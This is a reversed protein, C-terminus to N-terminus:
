LTLRPQNSSTELERKQSTQDTGRKKQFQPSSVIRFILESFPTELTLGKSLEEILLQDSVLESRGLSYGLLKSSLNRHFISANDRLYTRLGDIGKITSGDSLLSADDIEQGDRYTDRWRGVPDFHELAFGLPDIRSHCNACTPDTRHAELRARVTLGDSQVDDAPISGADAPPPPVPTGLIRRLIWEGRKVASTRLPASTSTLIAGLQLLGGRHEKTVGQTRTLINKPLDYDSMGYHDALPPDLFTYNAFLLDKLPRDQRVIYEFFSIAENYMSAKLPENFEPFREGDVGRYQDFQYFGLWQGFFETAFRRAKPHKLMREVEAQLHLPERLAESKATEILQTDPLSAWLLFSLRSALELPPLSVIDSGVKEAELRYLFAPSVLIRTILSRIASSHDLESQERLERYFSRLRDEEWTDLPRRWAATALDISDDLHQSEAAKLSRNSENLHNFLRQVHSRPEEGIENIWEQTLNTIHDAEEGVRYKKAVFQFYTNHYDFASLLDTWAHELAERDPGDILYKTLFKDDRHYKIVYHFSNREATNYTNDFPAPIPDRDSPAPERHSVQPLRQAFEAIGQRWTEIQNPDPNSLLAASAGTSAVTEGEVLGDSVTCRVLCDSGHETDLKVTVSFFGGRSELPVPFKLRINAIGSTVFNDPDIAEGLANQGFKLETIQEESLFSKMSKSSNRRTRQGRPSRIGMRAEEWLVVLQDAESLCAPLVELDFSAETSGPPWSIGVQFRHSLTPNFANESLVAAEEDDNTNAALGKQWSSLQSYLQQCAARAKEESLSDPSPLAHWQRSIETTPFSAKSDNFVSWIHAAFLPHIDERKALEILEINAEGFAQRHRYRWAAYFAKPYQELGFAEAGEGAGTRFGHKRYLTQIRNIASLEQGTKGPNSAFRLPGAGILAHSAVSKAAELYREITADQVFQVEGVNSFGEGGVADSAIVRNLKLDLGTLDQIAYNYEASTLRRLVVPGPDGALVEKSHTLSSKISQIIVNRQAKTPQPEDEPPMEHEDLMDRVLAWAKFDVGFANAEILSELNIKGKTKKSNHCDTCFESLVAKTKPDFASRNTVSARSQSTFVLSLAFVTGFLWELSKTMSLVVTRSDDPMPKRPFM